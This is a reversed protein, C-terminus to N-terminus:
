HSKNFLLVPGDRRMQWDQPVVQGDALMQHQHSTMSSPMIIHVIELAPGHVMFPAMQVKAHKPMAITVFLARLKTMHKLGEVRYQLDGDVYFANGIHVSEAHAYTFLTELDVPTMIAKHYYQINYDKYAHPMYRTLQNLGTSFHAVVSRTRPFLQIINADEGRFYIEANPFSDFHKVQSLLDPHATSEIHVIDVDAGIHHDRFQEFQEPTTINLRINVPSANNSFSQAKIFIVSLAYLDPCFILPIFQIKIVRTSVRM